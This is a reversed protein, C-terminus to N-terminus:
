SVATLSDKLFNWVSSSPSKYLDCTMIKVSSPSQALRQFMKRRPKIRKMTKRVATEVTIQEEELRWVDIKWLPNEV